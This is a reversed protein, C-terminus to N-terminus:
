GITPNSVWWSDGMGHDRAGEVETGLKIKAQYIVNQIFVSQGGGLPPCSGAMLVYAHNLKM